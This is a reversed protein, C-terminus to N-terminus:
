LAVYQIDEDRVVPNRFFRDLPAYLGGWLLDLVYGASFKRGGRLEM